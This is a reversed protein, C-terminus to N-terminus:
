ERLSRLVMYVRWQDIITTIVTLTNGNIALRARDRFSEGGLSEPFLELLAQAIGGEDAPSGTATPFTRLRDLVGSIEHTIRFPMFPLAILVMLGAGTTWLAVRRGRLPTM